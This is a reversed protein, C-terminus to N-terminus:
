HVTVTNIDAQSIIFKMDKQTHARGIKRGDAAFLQYRDPEGPIDNKIRRVYGIHDVGFHRLEEASITRLTQGSNKQSTNKEKIM